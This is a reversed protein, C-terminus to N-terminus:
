DGPEAGIGSLAGADRLKAMIGNLEGTKLFEKGGSVPRAPVDRVFEEMTKWGEPPRYEVIAEAVNMGIGKITTFGKRLTMKHNPDIAWNPGSTNINPRGIQVGAKRAAAIYAREKPTGAWSSLLGHMYELPFHAKLYAARYAMMGYSTAHARNFGYDTFGLIADWVDEADYGDVGHQGCHDVFIPHVRDMIEVAYQDIKDNSAKVAKMLDNWEDFPLGIATCIEMIQEQFVPVGMTVDLISDFFPNLRYPREDPKAARNDLYVKTQGGAMLAPRYLALCVIADLTNKVKMERGGKATSHGEFQFVGATNFGSALVKCAERDDWPLWSFDMNEHGLNQLAVNLTELARLGLLDLKVYGCDEVDEMVAQTVTTNSSPVLATALYADIPQAATPLVYGGAHTGLSRRVPLNALENLPKRHHDAVQGKFDHGQKRRMAAMYQVFVSGKDEGDGHEDQQETIGMRGYTGIAVMSPFRSRVYEIVRERSGSAIDIDVDPPKKRDVSLFRDFSTGWKIPDVETIGVMYNVLSGNASGRINFVIGNERMWNCVEHVLLFYNAFGMTKIVDLEHRAQKWYADWDATAVRDDELRTSKETLKKLKADPNKAVEPIMFKYGDLAPMSMNNLDLLAGHGEEIRDWIDAWSHRLTETDTLHYPGGPFRYDDNDGFYCIDKMLDHAAQHSADCYHSDQGFVIPLGTKDAIDLLMEVMEDDDHDDEYIDHHQIEVFTHPFWKALMEVMQLAAKEDKLMYTQQVLGFYCGTTIAVDSKATFSALDGLDILPKRHFRERSFSRSSMKNMAHFGNYNLAVMGMHYRQEKALKDNVDTVVYLESGPFPAIGHKACEKYLRLVGAMTGHDTLALGPQGLSAVRAVMDEVSGMGDLVSFESHAHIPFYDSPISKTV